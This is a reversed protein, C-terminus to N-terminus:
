HVLALLGLGYYTYEVDTADDWLGGRFSGVSVELAQVFLRVKDVSIRDSAGLRHLTWIGTFTSLLDALPARSNARFGGEDSPLTALFDIVRQRLQPTLNPSESQGADILQLLGVAAATPNTGSRRMPAVEVFGGDERQRSLVFQIAERARPVPRQLLQYTLGVLFTHYTSGSASGPTKAYGGDATRFTELM